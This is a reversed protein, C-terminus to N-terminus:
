FEEEDFDSPYEPDLGSDKSAMEELKISENVQDVIAGCVRRKRPSEISSEWVNQEQLGQTAIPLLEVFRHLDNSENEMMKRVDSHMRRLDNICFVVKLLYPYNITRDAPSVDSQIAVDEAVASLFCSSSMWAVAIDLHFGSSLLFEEFLFTGCCHLNHETPFKRLSIEMPLEFLGSVRMCEKVERMRLEALILLLNTIDEIQSVDGSAYLPSLANFFALGDKGSFASLADPLDQPATATIKFTYLIGRLISIIHSRVSPQLAGDVCIRSLPSIFANSRIFRGMNTDKLRHLISDVLFRLNYVALDCLHNQADEGEQTFAFRQISSLIMHPFRDEFYEMWIRSGPRNPDLLECILLEVQVLWISDGLIGVFDLDYQKILQVV